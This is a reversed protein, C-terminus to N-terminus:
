NSDADAGIRSFIERVATFDPTCFQVVDDSFSAACEVPWGIDQYNSSVPITQTLPEGLMTLLVDYDFGGTRLNATGTAAANFNDMRLNFSHENGLGGDLLLNGNVESFRILDPWQQIAEGSPSLAAISTFVQKILGINVLNETVTFSTEGSLDDLLSRASRGNASYSADVHLSGTLVDLRTVRPAIESIALDEGHMEGSLDGNRANWRMNASFSGGLAAVPPVEIDLVADEINTFATFNNIRLAGASLADATISGSLTLNELNPLDRVPRQFSEGSAAAPGISSSDPEPFLASVDLEGINLEYRINAPAPGNAFRVNTEAEIVTQESSSVLAEASLGSGDGALNFEVMAPWQGEPNGNPVSLLAPEPAPLWGFNRLLTRADFENSTLMAAYRPNELFEFVDVRGQLLVPTSNIDLDVIALHGSEADAEIDGVLGIAVERLQRNASDFWELDINALAPFAAGQLNVNSGVLQLNKLTFRRGTYLNQVDVRGGQVVIREPLMTVAGSEGGIEAPAELNGADWISNGAADIYVNVHFGDVLLERITLEGRLLDGRDLELQVLSASALEQPLGPNRLRADEFTLRAMPLLDLETDGAIVLEYGTADAIYAQLATQYQGPSAVWQVAIVIAALVAIGIGLLIKQLRSMM